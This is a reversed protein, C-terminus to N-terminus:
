DRYQRADQLYTVCFVHPAEHSLATSGLGIRKLVHLYDACAHYEPMGTTRAYPRAGRCHRPPPATYEHEHM